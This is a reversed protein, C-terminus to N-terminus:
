DKNQKPPTYIVDSEGFNEFNEKRKVNKLHNSLEEDWIDRNQALARMIGSSNKMKIIEQKTM